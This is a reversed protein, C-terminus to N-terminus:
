LFTLGMSLEEVEWFRGFDAKIDKFTVDTFISWLPEALSVTRVLEFESEHTVSINFHRSFTKM